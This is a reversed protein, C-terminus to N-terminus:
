PMINLRFAFSNVIKKRVPLGTYLGTSHNMKTASQLPCYGRSTPSTIKCARHATFVISLFILQVKDATMVATTKKINTLMRGMATGRLPFLACLSVHQKWKHVDETFSENLHYTPMVKIERERCPSSHTCKLSDICEAWLLMRLSASLHCKPCFAVMLLKREFTKPLFKKTELHEGLICKDSEFFDFSM